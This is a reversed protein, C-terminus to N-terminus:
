GDWVFIKSPRVYDEIPLFKRAKRASRRVDVVFMDILPTAYRETQYAHSAMAKGIDVLEDYESSADRTRCDGCMTNSVVM